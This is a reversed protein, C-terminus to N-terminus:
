FEGVKPSVRKIEASNMNGFWIKFYVYITFQRYIKFQGLFYNFFVLHTVRLVTAKKAVPCFM